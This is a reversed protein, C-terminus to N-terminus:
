FCCRVYSWQAMWAAIAGALKSDLYVYTFEQDIHAPQREREPQAKSIYFASSGRDQHGWRVTEEAPCGKSALSM